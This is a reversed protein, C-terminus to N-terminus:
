SKERALADMLDAALVVQEIEEKTIAGDEDEEQEQECEGWEVDERRKLALKRAVDERRGLTYVIPAWQVLLAFLFGFVAVADGHANNTNWLHLLLAFSMILAFGRTVGLGLEGNRLLIQTAVGYLNLAVWVGTLVEDVPHGFELLTVIFAVFGVLLALQDLTASPATEMETAVPKRSMTAATHSVAAQLVPPVIANARARLELDEM